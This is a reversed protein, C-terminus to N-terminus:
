VAALAEAETAYNGIAEDLRTVEFIRQYHESLGFAFLRQRQRHIRILLTVLLGIGGSNMFSLGTFNLIFVGVDPGSATTYADMLVNETFATVEGNIDIVSAVPTVHRVTMTTQTLSM